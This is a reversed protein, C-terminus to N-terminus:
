PSTPASRRRLRERLRRASADPDIPCCCSGATRRRELSQDVGSNACVFGHHTETILVPGVQARDADVRAARGRRRAPGQGVPTAWETAFASPTSTTWSSRAARPRPCSRRRSSSSTATPSARRAAAILAALDAGADIEPLGEVGVIEMARVNRGLITPRPRRRRGVHRWPLRDRSSKSGTPTAVGDVPKSKVSM